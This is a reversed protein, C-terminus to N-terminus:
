RNGNKQPVAPVDCFQELNCSPSRQLFRTHLALLAFSVMMMTRASSMQSWCHAHVLIDAVVQADRGCAVNDGDM